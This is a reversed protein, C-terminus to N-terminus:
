CSKLELCAPVHILCIWRKLSMTGLKASLFM